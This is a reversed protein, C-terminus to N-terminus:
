LDSEKLVWGNARWCGPFIGGPHKHTLILEHGPDGGQAALTTWLKVQRTIPDTGIQNGSIINVIVQYM